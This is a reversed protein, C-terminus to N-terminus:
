IKEVKQEGDGWYSRRGDSRGDIQRSCVDRFFGERHGEGGGGAVRHTVHGEEEQALAVDGRPLEALLPAAAGASCCVGWM